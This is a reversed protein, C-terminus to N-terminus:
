IVEQMILNSARMLGQVIDYPSKDMEISNIKGPPEEGDTM